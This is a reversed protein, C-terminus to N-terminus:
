DAKEQKSIQPALKCDSSAEFAVWISGLLQSAQQDYTREDQLDADLMSHLQLSGGVASSMTQM